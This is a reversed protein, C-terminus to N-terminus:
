KKPRRWAKVQVRKTDDQTDFRFSHYGAQMLERVQFPLDILLVWKKLVAVMGNNMSGITFLSAGTEYSRSM